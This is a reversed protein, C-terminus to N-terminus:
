SLRWGMRSMSESSTSTNVVNGIPEIALREKGLIEVLDDRAQGWDAEAEPLWRTAHVAIRHTNYISVVHKRSDGFVALSERDM